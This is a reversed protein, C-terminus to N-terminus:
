SANRRCSWERLIVFVARIGDKAGIKKGSKFDRPDYSILQNGIRVGSRALAATIQPEIGFRDETLESFIRKMIPVPIAKYCCEMDNVNLGTMLNSLGTLTRNVKTHLWGMPSRRRGRDFRDGYIVDFQDDELAELLLSFDDPHYELDADQIVLVDEDDAHNLTHKIGTRIAAGKGRNDEHRLAITRDNETSLEDVVTATAQDSCDDIIVVRSKWGEPLRAELVRRLCDRLTKAENFCPIVVHLSPV